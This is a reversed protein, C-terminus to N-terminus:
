TSSETSAIQQDAKVEVSANAKAIALHLEVSTTESVVVAISQSRSEAFGDAKVTVVYDGPVLLPVDFTGSADSTAQRSAHTALNEIAVSAHSLPRGAPDVIQGRIAGTGPAQAFVRSSQVLVMVSAILWVRGRM